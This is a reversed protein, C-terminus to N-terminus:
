YAAGVRAELAFLALLAAFCCLVLDELGFRVLTSCTFRCTFCYLLTSCTFCYLLLALADIKTPLGYPSTYRVVGAVLYRLLSTARYLHAV